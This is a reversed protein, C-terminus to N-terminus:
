PSWDPASPFETPLDGLIAQLRKQDANGIRRDLLVLLDERDPVDGKWSGQKIRAAIEGLYNVFWITIRLAMMRAEFLQKRHIDQEFRNGHVLDCRLDYLDEFQKKLRTREKKTTGVIAASRKAISKRIGREEGLLAELATIHWLLQELEETFFAKILNGMAVKLFPWRTDLTDLYPLKTDHKKKELHRLCEDARQVCQEFAAARSENLDFIVHHANHEEGTDPDVYKIGYSKLKSRDPASEPGKLDNDDVRLVFPIKFGFPSGDQGSYTLPDKPDGVWDFLVLRALVREIAPPFRTYEVYVHGKVAAADAASYYLYGLRRPEEEVKAVIFWYEQLADLTDKDLFAHPYFVRNVDNGVIKDLEKRDFRRIEFGSFKLERKPFRVFELPALYKTQVHRCRFARKYRELLDCPTESGKFFTDTYFGTRRFFNRIPDRWWSEDRASHWDDSRFATRTAELLAIIERGEELQEVLARLYHAKNPFVELGGKTTPPSRSLEFKAEVAKTYTDFAQEIM